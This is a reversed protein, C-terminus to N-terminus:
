GDGCSLNPNSTDAGIVCPTSVSSSVVTSPNQILQITQSFSGTEPLLQRITPDGNNGSGTALFPAASKTTANIGFALQIPNSPAGATLCVALSTPLIPFSFNYHPNADITDGGKEPVVWGDFSLVSTPFLVQGVAAAPTSTSATFSGPPEWGGVVEFGEFTNNTCNDQTTVLTNSLNLEAALTMMPAGAPPAGASAVGVWALGVTATVGAPCTGALTLSTNGTTVAATATTAVTATSGKISVAIGADTTVFGGTDAKSAATMALTHSGSACSFGQGGGTTNSLQFAMPDGNFLVPSGSVYKAAGISTLKAATCAASHSQNMTATTGSVATIYTGAAFPGGSVSKGVDTTAWKATASTM